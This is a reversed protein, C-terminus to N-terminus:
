GMKQSTMMIMRAKGTSLMPILEQYISPMIFNTEDVYMVNYTQGRLANTERYVRCSLTNCSRDVNDDNILGEGNKKFFVVEVTAFKMHSVVQAEYYFDGDPSVGGNVVKRHEYEKYQALNFQECMQPVYIRVNSFVSMVLSLNHATYLTKLGAAPCFALTLAIITEIFSSKGCRRPIIFGAMKTKFRTALTRATSPTLHDLGFKEKVYMLIMERYEGFGCREVMTFFTDLMMLQQFPLRYFKSPVLFGSGGKITLTMKSFWREDTFLNVFLFFHDLDRIKKEPMNFLLHQKTVVSRKDM